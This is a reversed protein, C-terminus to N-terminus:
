LPRPGEGKKYLHWAHRRAAAKTKISEMRQCLPCYQAAIPMPYECVACLITEELIPAAVSQQPDTVAGSDDNISHQKVPTSFGVLPSNNSCQANAQAKAEHNDSGAAGRAEPETANHQGASEMVKVPRAPFPRSQSQGSSSQTMPSDEITFEVHYCSGKQELNSVRHKPHEAQWKPFYTLPIIATM